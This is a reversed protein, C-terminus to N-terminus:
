SNKKFIYSVLNKKCLNQLPIDENIISSDRAPDAKDWDSLSTSQDLKNAPEDLVLDPDLEFLENLSEDTKSQSNVISDLIHCKTNEHFTFIDKLEEKTFQNSTDNIEDILSDSLGLKTLQRQFIKEEISGTILFRYIFVNRTQGDRWIRAMAQLDISPNWDLDYLVLRSAGVLNLGQGGAKASLLFVWDDSHNNFRDVLEQRKASPTSGDLRLFSINLDKFHKEFVDLTKRTKTSHAVIVVKENGHSKIYALLKILCILKNGQMDRPKAIEFEQKLDDDSQLLSPANCIKKLMSMYALANSQLHSFNTQDLLRHFLSCQFGNPKIFLVFETKPPLYEKNIASTRRLIFMQTLDMLQKLREEGIRKVENSAKPQRSAQIPEDFVKKFSVSTSLIGPNVFDVMAYFENLDNQIPTGSLIVRKKCEFKNLLSALKIQSNKLRHGEDCIILDFKIKEVVNKLSLLKEYGCILVSYSKNMIFHQLNSNGEVIFVNIREDGLWKKFEKQWNKILTAPCCILVKKVVSEENSYPSQKLLTWVLTITQLSKGLGMEDALIAGHGNFGKLGLVCEYLFSVGDKQHPRLNKALYPDVVVDIISVDKGNIKISDGLSPRKMVLAESCNPDHRAQRQLKIKKATNNITDKPKSKVKAMAMPAIGNLDYANEKQPISNTIFIRGSEYEELSAVGEILIEKNGLRFVEDYSDLTDWDLSKDYIKTNKIITNGEMDKLEMCRSDSRVLLVGDGQWTKNQNKMAVLTTTTPSVTRKESM